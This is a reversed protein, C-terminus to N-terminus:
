WRARELMVWQDAAADRGDLDCLGLDRRTAADLREVTRRAAAEARAARWHDLGTMAARVLDAAADKLREGWPRHLPITPPCCATAPTTM